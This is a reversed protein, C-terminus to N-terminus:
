TKIRELTLWPFPPHIIFFNASTTSVTTEATQRAAVAKAPEIAGPCLVLHVLALEIVKVTLPPSATSLPLALATIQFDELKVVM